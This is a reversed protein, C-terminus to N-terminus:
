TKFSINFYWNNGFKSLSRFFWFYHLLIFYSIMVLTGPFCSIMRCGFLAHCWRWQVPVTRMTAFGGCCSMMVPVATGPLASPVLVLIISFLLNEWCGLIGFSGMEPWVRGNRPRLAFIANSGASRVTERCWDRFVFFFRWIQHLKFSFRCTWILLPQVFKGEFDSVM